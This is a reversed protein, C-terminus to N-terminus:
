TGLWGDMAAFFEEAVFVEPGKLKPNADAGVKVIRLASQDNEDKWQKIAGRSEDPWFGDTFVMFKADVQDALFRVLADGDASDRCEFLEAPVEDGTSWPVIKTDQNWAVLKIDTKGAHGLRFYQEVERVLGRVVLRKGAELMSGSVDCVLWLAGM